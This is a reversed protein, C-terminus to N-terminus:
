LHSLIRQSRLGFLPFAGRVKALRASARRGTETIFKMVEGALAVAEESNYSM